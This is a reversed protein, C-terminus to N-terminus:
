SFKLVNKKLARLTQLASELEQKEVRGDSDQSLADRQNLILRRRSRLGSSYSEATQKGCLHKMSAEGKRFAYRHAWPVM